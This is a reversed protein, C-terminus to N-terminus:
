GKKFVFRRVGDQAEFSAPASEAGPERSALILAGAEFKFIAPTVRGVMEAFPCETITARMERPNSGAPFSLDAKYWEGPNAGQFHATRGQITLICRGAEERGTEVGEWTGELAPDLAPTTVSAAHALGMPGALPLFVAAIAMLCATYVLTKM